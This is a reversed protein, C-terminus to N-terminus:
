FKEKIKKLNEKIEQNLKIIDNKAITIEKDNESELAKNLAFVSEKMTSILQSLTLIKEEYLM